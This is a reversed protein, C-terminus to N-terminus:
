ISTLDSSTTTDAENGTPFPLLQDGNFTNNLANSDSTGIGQTFTQQDFNWGSSILELFDKGIQDILSNIGTYLQNNGTDGEMRQSLGGNLLDDVDDNEDPNSTNSNDGAFPNGGGVLPNSGGAFPNNGSGSSGNSGNASNSGGGFSSTDAPNVGGAFINWFNDGAFPNGGYPLDGGGAVPNDGGGEFPNGESSDPVGVNGFIDEPGDVGPLDLLPGFPSQRILDNAGASANGEGSDTNDGNSSNLTEFDFTEM